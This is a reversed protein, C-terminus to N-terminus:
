ADIGQLPVQRHQQLPEHCANEREPAATLSPYAPDPDPNPDRSRSCRRAGSRRRTRRVRAAPPRRAPNTNTRARRFIPRRTRTQPHSLRWRRARERRMAASFTDKRRKGLRDVIYDAAPDSGAEPAPVSREAALRAFHELVLVALPLRAADVFIRGLPTTEIDDPASISV